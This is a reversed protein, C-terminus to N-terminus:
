ENSESKSWSTGFLEHGDSLRLVATNELINHAQEPISDAKDYAIFIQKGSEQYKILIHELHSDEIRKLINSDHIVAPIVPRLELMTLDYVVLSKFATGESTNGPTEFTIEKQPNIKLIPATELGGTVASNIRGMTYTIDDQIETIKESQQNLLNTLRKENEARAQQLELQHKLEATEEKLKDIQRSISVCQSIARESMERVLGSDEIKTQLRKIENDCRAILPQLREIEYVMEEGLIERIRKHFQEIEKFEKINADPFFRILSDFESIADPNGVSINEKIINLQSQLRNRRRMCTSLEKKAIEIKEFTQTDFGFDMM